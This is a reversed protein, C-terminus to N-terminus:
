SYFYVIKIKSVELDRSKLDNSGNPSGGKVEKFWNSYRISVTDKKIFSYQKAANKMNM